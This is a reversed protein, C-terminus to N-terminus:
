VPRIVVRRDQRSGLSESRVGQEESSALHVLRRDALSMPPLEKERGTRRVEEATNKALSFIYQEREKQYDNIDLSFTGPAFYLGTRRSIVLLMLHQLARLTEGGKGIVIGSNEKTHFSIKVTTNLVDVEVEGKIDLLVFFSEAIEKIKQRNENM